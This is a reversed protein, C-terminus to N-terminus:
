LYPGEGRPVRPLGTAEPHLHSSVKAVSHFRHTSRTRPQVSAHRPSVYVRKQQSSFRAFPDARVGLVSNRIKWLFLKHCAAAQSRCRESNDCKRPKGAGALSGVGHQPGAQIIVRCALTWTRQAQLSSRRDTRGNRVPRKRTRHEHKAGVTVGPGRTQAEEEGTLLGMSGSWLDQRASCSSCHLFLGHRTNGGTGAAQRRM